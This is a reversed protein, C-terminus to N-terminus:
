IWRFMPRTLLRGGVVVAAIAGAVAAAQAWASLGSLPGMHSEPAARTALLPFLALMPIVAIDQFLLVAFSARGFDTSALGKERLSQLVIATSSLSLILGVAVGIRWDIGVRLTVFAFLAGTLLVQAGGLGLIATRMRWLLAPELELGILFLMIVVGLEAAHMVGEPDGVFGLGFPGILAGAVLYGLVSGLGIRQAVLVSVVAATLFVFAQTLFSHEM